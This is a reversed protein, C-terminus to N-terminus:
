IGYELYLKKRLAASDAASRAEDLRNDQILRSVLTLAREEGQKVGKKVGRKEGIKIGEKKGKEQEEKSWDDFAKCMNLNGGKTKRYTEKKFRLSRIHLMVCLLDYTADDINEFRDAHKQCYAQMAERSDRCKMMGILERLGTEFKTEDLETLHIVHIRHDTIFKELVDDTGSLDMMSKLSQPATWKGRGHYLVVQATPIFRDTRRIGSLFEAGRTLDKQRDYHQQLRRLQRKLDEVEYEMCRLPMCLNEEDQNEVAIIVYGGKQYLLKAVDRERTVQRKEGARNILDEHYFKQYEALQKPTVVKRGDYFVGNCFDAFVEPISTYDNLTDNVKGM